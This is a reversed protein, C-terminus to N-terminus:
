TLFSRLRSALSPVASPPLGATGLRLSLRLPYYVPPVMFSMAGITMLRNMPNPRPDMGTTLWILFIASLLDETLDSGENAEARAGFEDGIKLFQAPLDM